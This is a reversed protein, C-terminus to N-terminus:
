EDNEAEIRRLVVDLIEAGSRGTFDIKSMRLGKARGVEEGRDFGDCWAIGLMVFYGIIGLIAIFWIM